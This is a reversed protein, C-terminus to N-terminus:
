APEPRLEAPLLQDAHYRVLEFSPTYYRDWGEAHGAHTVIAAALRVLPPVARGGLADLCLAGLVEGHLEPLMAAGWSVTGDEILGPGHPPSIGYTATLRPSSGVAELAALGGLLVEDDVGFVIDPRWGPDTLLGAVNATAAATTGGGQACLVSVREHTRRLGSLFGAERDAAEGYPPFGVLLVRVLERPALELGVRTGLRVGVGYEDIGLHSVVRPDGTAISETLVPVGATACRDLVGGLGTPDMPSIALVRAGADLLGHLQTLQLAADGAADTVVLEVGEAAAVAAAAPALRRYWAHEGINIAYGIM